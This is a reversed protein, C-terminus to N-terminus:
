GRLKSFLQKYPHVVAPVPREYSADSAQNAIDEEIVLMDRDDAVFGPMPANADAFSLITSRSQRGLSGDFAPANTELNPASWPSPAQPSPLPEAESTTPAQSARLTEAPDFTMADLNASSVRDLLEVYPELAAEQLGDNSSDIEFALETPLSNLVPPTVVDSYFPFYNESAKAPMAEVPVEEEFDQGFLDTTAASPDQQVPWPYEESVPEVNALNAIREQPFYDNLRAQEFVQLSSLDTFESRASSPTHWPYDETEPMNFQSNSRPADEFFREPSPSFGTPPEGQFAAASFGSLGMGASPIAMWPEEVTNLPSEPLQPGTNEALLSDWPSDNSALNLPNTPLEISPVPEPQAFNTSLNENTAAENRNSPFWDEFAAASAQQSSAFDNESDEDLAGFEIAQSPPQIPSAADNWPLPIQQLSSWAAEVTSGSCPRQRAEAAIRLAQDALQDILRPVGDTARHILHTAEETMVSAASAGCREIKNRIFNLTEQTTLPTLYCRTALRQNLSELQPHGLLEELRMTGCLVLRVRPVGDRTLNTLMRLEELLRISLTQAEDVVLVLGDSDNENSPQLRDLLSLRLEGENLDRYPMRLEFLLSQLLARRSCLQSSSLVVVEFIRRFADAIRLCVMSKGLGPGGFIAVPGEARHIARHCSEFAAEQSAVSCYRELTAVSLFPRKQLGFFKEHM